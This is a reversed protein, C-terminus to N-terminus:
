FSMWRRYHSDLFHKHSTLSLDIGRPQNYNTMRWCFHELTYPSAAKNPTLNESIIFQYGLGVYCRAITLCKVWNKCEIDALLSFFESWRNNIDLYLCIESFINGGVCSCKCQYNWVLHQWELQITVFHRHNIIFRSVFVYIFM